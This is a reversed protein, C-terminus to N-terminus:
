ELNLYFNNINIKRKYKRAGNRDREGKTEFLIGISQMQVYLKMLIKDKVCTIIKKNQAKQRYFFMSTYTITNDSETVEGM